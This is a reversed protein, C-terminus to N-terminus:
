VQSSKKGYRGRVNVATFTKKPNGQVQVIIPINLDVQTTVGNGRWVGQPMRVYVVIGREKTPLGLM